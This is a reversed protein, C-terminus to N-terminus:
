KTDNQKTGDTESHRTDTSPLEVIFWNPGLLHFVIGPAFGECTPKLRLIDTFTCDAVFNDFMVAAPSVYSCNTLAPLTKVNNRTRRDSGMQSRQRLWCNKESLAAAAKGHLHTFLWELSMAASGLQRQNIFFWSPCCNAVGNNHKEFLNIATFLILRGGTIAPSQICLGEDPRLGARM